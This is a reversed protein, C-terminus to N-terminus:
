WPSGASPTRLQSVSPIKPDVATIVPPKCALSTKFIIKFIPLFKFEWIKIISKNFRLNLFTNNLFLFPHM